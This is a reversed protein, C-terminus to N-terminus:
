LSGLQEKLRETSAVGRNVYRPSGNKDLIFTTPASFVGWRDAVDPAETADVKIVQVRDGLEAQLQKLAPQQQTRCPDCFPTTFYIVTPTGSRLTTLLPDRPAHRAVQRLTLRNYACYAAVGVAVIVAAIFLRELIM